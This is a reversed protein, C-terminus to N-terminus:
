RCPRTRESVSQIHVRVGLRSRARTFMRSEDGPTAVPNPQGSREGNCPVARRGGARQARAIFFDYEIARTRSTGYRDASCIVCLACELVNLVPEPLVRGLKRDRGQRRELAVLDM